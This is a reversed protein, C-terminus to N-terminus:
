APNVVSSLVELNLASGKVAPNEVGVSNVNPVPHKETTPAIRPLTPHKATDRVWVGQIGTADQWNGVM